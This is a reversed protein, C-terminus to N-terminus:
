INAFVSVLINSGKILNFLTRDEVVLSYVLNLGTLQALSKLESEKHNQYYTDYESMPKYSIGNFVNRSRMKSNM